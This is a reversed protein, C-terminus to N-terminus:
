PSEITPSTDVETSQDVIALGCKLCAQRIREAVAEARVQDRGHVVVLVGEAALVAAVVAGLGSSSGTVLAARGDLNLEV